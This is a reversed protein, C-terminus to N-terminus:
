QLKFDVGNEMLCEYYTASWGESAFCQKKIQAPRWAFWWFVFLLVILAFGTITWFYSIGGKSEEQNNIDM